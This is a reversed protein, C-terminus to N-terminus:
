RIIMKCGRLNIVCGMTPTQCEHLRQASQYFHSCICNWWASSGNGFQHWIELRLHFLKLNETQIWIPTKSRLLLVNKIVPFVTVDQEWPLMPSHSCMNHITIKLHKSIPLCNVFLGTLASIKLSKVHLIINLNNFHHKLGRDQKKPCKVLTCRSSLSSWLSSLM